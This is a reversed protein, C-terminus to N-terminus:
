LEQHFALRKRLLYRRRRGSRRRHRGLFRLKRQPRFRPRNRTQSLSFFRSRSLAADAAISNESGRRSLPSTRKKQPSRTRSNAPLEAGTKVLSEPPLPITPVIKIQASRTRNVRRSNPFPRIRRLCHRFVKRAITETGSPFRPTRAASANLGRVKRLSGATRLPYIPRQSSVKLVSAAM